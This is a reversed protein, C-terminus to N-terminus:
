LSPSSTKKREDMQQVLSTLPHRHSLIIVPKPSELKTNELQFTNKFHRSPWSVSIRKLKLFFFLEGFAETTHSLSM